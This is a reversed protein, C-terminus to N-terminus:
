STGQRAVCVYVCWMDVIRDCGRCSCLRSLAREVLLLLPLLLLFAPRSGLM